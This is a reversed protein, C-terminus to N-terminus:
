GEQSDEPEPHDEKRRARLAQMGVRSTLRRHAESLSEFQSQLETMELSLKTLSRTSAGRLLRRLRIFCWVAMACSVFSSSLLLFIYTSTAWLM